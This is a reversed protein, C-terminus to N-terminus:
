AYKQGQMKLYRIVGCLESDRHVLDGDPNLVWYEGNTKSLVTYRSKIRRLFTSLINRM